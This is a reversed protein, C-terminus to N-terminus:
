KNIEKTNNVESDMQPLQAHQDATCIDGPKSIAYDCLILICAASTKSSSLTAQLPFVSIINNPSLTHRESTWLGKGSIRRLVENNIFHMVLKFLTPPIRLSSGCYIDVYMTLYFWIKSINFYSCTHAQYRFFYLINMIQSIPSLKENFPQEQTLLFQNMM